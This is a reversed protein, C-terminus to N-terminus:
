SSVFGMHAITLTVCMDMDVPIPPHPSPFSCSIHYTDYRQGYVQLKMCAHWKVCPVICMM